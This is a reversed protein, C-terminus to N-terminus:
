AAVGVRTPGHAVMLALGDRYGLLRTQLLAQARDPRMGAALPRPAAQVLSRTEVPLILREDLGFARAAACAFGHRDVRDPGVVHLVGRQGRGALELTAEALNPAYTPSGLQDVPASLTEGAALTRLLRCVFNKGQEEWGYVVTTRLVLGGAALVIREAEVKLEGYRCIPAVLDDEAYPGASGDFVNDSSFFVLLAGSGGAAAAVNRVGDVNVATAAAADIECLDASGVAAALYVVRPRVGGLVRAVAAADRVDLPLLGPQAHRHYTGVAHIGQRGAAALLAGGVLGSAGVVLQARSPRM